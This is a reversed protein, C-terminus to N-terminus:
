KNVIVIADQFCYGNMEEFLFRGIHKEVIEIKVIKNKAEEGFNKGGFLYLSESDQSLSYSLIAESGRLSENWDWNNFKLDFKSVILGDKDINSSYLVLMQQNFLIAQNEFMKQPPSNLMKIKKWLNSDFNYCFLDNLYVTNDHHLYCGGFIYLQNEQLFSSHKFRKRPINGEPLLEKCTQTTPNIQFLENSCKDTALLGGFIILDLQESYSCSHFRRPIILDLNLLSMLKWENKEINYQHVDNFVNIVVFNIGSSRYYGGVLYLMGSSSDTVLTHGFRSHPTMKTKLKTWTNLLLDFCFFDNKLKENAHIDVGGFIYLKNNFISSASGFRAPPQVETRTVVSKFKM